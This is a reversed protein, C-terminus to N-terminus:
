ALLSRPTQSKGKEVISKIPRFNERLSSWKEPYQNFLKLIKSQHKKLIDSIAAASVNPQCANGINVGTIKENKSILLKAAYEYRDLFETTKDLNEEAVTKQQVPNHNNIIDHEAIEYIDGLTYKNVLIELSDKLLEKIETFKLNQKSIKEIAAKSLIFDTSEFATLENLLYSYTAQTQNYNSEELHSIKKQLSGFDINSAIKQHVKRNNHNAKLILTAQNYILNQIVEKITIAMADNTSSLKFNGINNKLYFYIVDSKEDHANQFRLELVSSEEEDTFTLQEAKNEKTEFPVQEPKIWNAKKNSSRIKNIFGVDHYTLRNLEGDFVLAEVEQKSQNYFVALCKDLGSVMQRSNSM